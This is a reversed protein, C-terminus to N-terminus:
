VNKSKDSPTETPSGLKKRCLPIIKCFFWYYSLGTILLPPVMFVLHEGVLEDCQVYDYLGVGILIPLNVVRFVCFFGTFLVLMANDLRTNNVGLVETYFARGNLFMTSYETMVGTMMYVHAMEYYLCLGNGAIVILHHIVDTLVGGGGTCVTVFMDVFMRNTVIVLVGRSLDTKYLVRGCSTMAEGFVEGANEWFYVTALASFVVM